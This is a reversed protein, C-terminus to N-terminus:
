SGDNVERLLQKFHGIAEELSIYITIRTTRNGEVGKLSYKGGVDLKFFPRAFKPYYQLKGYKDLKQIFSSTINTDLLFERKYSGDFCDEIFKIKLIEMM